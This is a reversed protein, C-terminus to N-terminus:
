NKMYVEALDWRDKGHGIESHVTNVVERVKKFLKKDEKSVMGYDAQKRETRNTLIRHLMRDGRENLGQDKMLTEVRGRAYAHRFGHCGRRDQVIDAKKCALNVARRITDAKIPLVKQEPDKGHLMGEMEPEFAKPVPTERFRGGKTIGSGNEISLRWGDQNRVFHEVRVNAAEKVRLGLERMLGVAQRVADPVNNRITKYEEDSYSRNEARKLEKYATLRKEPTFIVKGKGFRESRANLGKQLHRLATEVNRRHGAGTGKMKLHDLYAKYHQETLHFLQKIGYTEKTWAAFNQCANLTHRKQEISHIGHQEEKRLVRKSQGIKDIEEICTKVQYALSPKGRRKGM